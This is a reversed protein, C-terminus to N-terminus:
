RINRAIRAGIFRSLVRPTHQVLLLINRMAPMRNGSRVCDWAQKASQKYYLEQWNRLGTGYAAECQPDGKIYVLQSRLIMTVHKLMKATNLSKNASHQRYESVLHNHGHVPVSRAVRLYLEYDSCVILSPDFAGVSDLVARRFVVAAPHWIPCTRLMGAYHNEEFYPEQSAPLISSDQAILRCLGFVFACEPHTRFGSLAIEFARPLLRDDADLFVVYPGTSERLGANRAAASGRNEQRIYRVSSYRAAVEEVDDSSGDDVVIIEYHPYTQALVSEIAEGLFRAQQYCPIVVSVLPEHGIMDATNM